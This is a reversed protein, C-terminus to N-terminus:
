GLLGLGWITPDGRNQGVVPLSRTGSTHSFCSFYVLGALGTLFKQMCFNTAGGHSSDLQLNDRCLPELLHQVELRQIKLLRLFLSFVFCAFLFPGGGSPGLSFPKDSLLCHQLLGQKVFLMKSHHLCINNIPFSTVYKSSVTMHTLICSKPGLIGLHVDKKEKQRQLLKGGNYLLVFIQTWNRLLQSFASPFHDPTASCINGPSQITANM